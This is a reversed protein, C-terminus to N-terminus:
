DARKYIVARSPPAHLIGVAETTGHLTAPDVLKGTQLIIGGGLANLLGWQLTQADVVKVFQVELEVPAGNPPTARSQAHVEGGAVAFTVSWRSGDERSSEWTGLFPKMSAVSPPSLAAWEAFRPDGFRMANEEAAAVLERPIDVPYGYASSLERYRRSLVPMTYTGAHDGMVNPAYDRFLGKLGDYVARYVMTEHTEDTMVIREGYFGASAGSQPIPWDKKWGYLNEISILRGRSSSSERLLKAAKDLIPQVPAFGALPADILVCWGFTAPRETMAYLAFLGGQSHGVLVRLPQTRYRKDLFPILEDGLFALFKAQGGKAYDRPPPMDRNRDTNVVAVVLAEPMQPISSNETMFRAATATVAGTFEGDLAIIVPYRHKGTAYAAPPYVRIERMERLRASKVHLTEGITIPASTALASSAVAAHLLSLLM